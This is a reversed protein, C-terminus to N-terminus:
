SRTYSSVFILEEGIKRQKLSYRGEPIVFSVAFFDKGGPQRGQGLAM